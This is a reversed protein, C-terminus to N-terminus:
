FSEAEIDAEYERYLNSSVKEYCEPSVATSITTVTASKEAIEAIKELVRNLNTQTNSGEPTNM